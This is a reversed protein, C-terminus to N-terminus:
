KKKNAKRLKNEEKTKVHHCTECIAQLNGPECWMNNVVEDWSLSELSKHLPIIPIKHDIQLKWQPTVEGCSECYGWKKVRPHRDDEHRIAVKKLALLRLESRSFVRRMAGKLLGREKPTIRPNSM